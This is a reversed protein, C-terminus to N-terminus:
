AAAQTQSDIGCHAAGFILHNRWADVETKQQILQQYFAGDAIDGYLVAGVLRGARLFLRKYHRQQRDQWVLSETGEGSTDGSSFVPVGSVKLHTSTVSGTYTAKAHPHCLLEALVDAQEYLPAVLGYTQGRHSVCEGLAWIAADSTQMQDNVVIGGDVQLGAREALETNARVGMAAVVVNAARRQGDSFLVGTIVGDAREIHTACANLQIQVGRAELAECLWGAAFADLQRNMLWSGRHLLTVAVGRGALGVAAEIGLLGGGLVVARDQSSLQMLTDADQLTRFVQVGTGSVGPIDPLCASSGTSLILRDFGMQRGGQLSIVKDTRNIAEVWGQVWTIGAQEYWTRPKSLLAEASRKGALVDSLGLRNYGGVAEGSIVTMRVGPKQHEVLQELLRMAAMGHGVLVWHEGTDPLGNLNHRSPIHMVRGGFKTWFFASSGFVGHRHNIRAGNSM